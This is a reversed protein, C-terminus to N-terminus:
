ELKSLENNSPTSDTESLIKLMERINTTPAKCNTNVCIYATAKNNLAEQHQTSPVVQTIEPQEENHPKFVVVLNPLFRSRIAEIMRQTGRKSLDGVVLVEYHTGTMFDLATLLHTHSLPSQKVRDAVQGMVESAMQELDPNATIRGLRMLNWMAVANGSPLASDSFQKQRVLLHEGDEPTFYFGGNRHDWFLKVLDSNLALATKLYEADFTAEYLEILGWILYAYDDLNALIAAEGDRFRHLLRGDKQMTNLVFRVAKKAKDALLSDNYVQAGKALAAIMLGNWDTLIKDDKHPHVREERIKFLRKRVRELRRLFSHVPQGIDKATSAPAKSIRLINTGTEGRSVEELFNGGKKIDFVKIIFNADRGLLKKIEAYSWVYFKGEKGESDADEASYFAGEPSTMDRLVYTFIERAIDEYIKKRTAQYTETYVYALLAQDYLMKEFHPLLWQRDTSYRHFGFGVHDFIGGYRMSLLTKEVMELPKKEGSQKWYRLLFILNHPTPFKPATGFGGYDEDFNRSLYEYTTKNITIDLFGTGSLHSIHELAIAVQNVTHLVRDKKQSWLTKIQPILDILGARGFRTEKPIYTAAYFPKKDPTMIITLPWGGSGTMLQCVSMYLNDIDPREERDVKICIFASNMLKAVDVDEFSEREMVHCWHCTSYGISLFIPKNESQARAFAEDSWPYWNVPDYAHQILYPSKENILHNTKKSKRRKMM